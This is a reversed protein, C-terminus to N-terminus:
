LSGEGAKVRLETAERFHFGDKEVHTRLNWRGGIPLKLTAAYRGPEGERLGFSFAQAHRTLIEAIVTVRANEIPRGSRDRVDVSIPSAMGATGDFAVRISWGLSRQAEAEELIANFTQGRQFPHATVTGPFTRFATVVFISQLVVLGVFFGIFIYPIFRDIPRVEFAPKM